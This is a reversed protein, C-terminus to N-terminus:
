ESWRARDSLFIQEGEQLPIGQTLPFDGPIRGELLPLWSIYRPAHLGSWFPQNRTLPTFYLGSFRGMYDNIDYFEEINTPLLVSNQGGYWATAWPMDTCMLEEPQLLNSVYVIIGPAYPPYPRAAAPPLVTFILPLATLLVLASTVATQALRLTLQLRDLLLMFFALGYMIIFPWFLLTLQFTQEGFLSAILVLLVLSLALCWRLWHVPNRVFRYFFATLFLATLLGEGITRLDNQYFSALNTLAKVRLAPLAESAKIDPYLAREFTNEPFLSTENLATYPALGLPAGSVLINRTMWPALAVLFVAAYTVGWQWRHRKLIIGLFLALGPMLAIAAYRAHFAAICLLLSSLVPLGWQRLPLEPNKELRGAAVLMAYVAAVGLLSAFTISSGALSVRWVSDSILYLSVGLVALRRDFLRRAILFLFLATLLACLHNFIMIRYEPQFVVLPGEPGSTFDAGTIKLWASLVVPYLPAHVLDPHMAMQADTARDNRTLFWISAPRINQTVLQNHVQLNRALQAYDMAEADKLGKFQNATYLLIVFFVFLIYLSSKILRLGIGVDVNYVLDQIRSEFPQNAM